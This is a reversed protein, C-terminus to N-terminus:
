LSSLVRATAAGLHVRTPRLTPPSQTPIPGDAEVPSGRPRLPLEKVM